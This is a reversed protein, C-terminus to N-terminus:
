VTESPRLYKLQERFERSQGKILTNFDEDPMSTILDKIENFNTEYVNKIYKKMEESNDTKLRQRLEADVDEGKSEAWLAPNSEKIMKEVVKTEEKDMAGQMSKIQTLAKAKDASKISGMAKGWDVSGLYEKREKGSPLIELMSGSLGLARKPDGKVAARGLVQRLQLMNEAKTNDGKVIDEVAANDFKDIAGSDQMAKLYKQAIPNRDGKNQKMFNVVDEASADKIQGDAGVTRGEEALLQKMALSNVGGGKEAGAVEEEWKEKSMGVKRTKLVNLQTEVEASRQKEYAGPDFINQGKAQRLRRAREGGYTTQYKGVQGTEKFQKWATGVAAGTARSRIKGTLWDQAKGTYAGAEGCLKKAAFAGGLLFFISLAFQFLRGISRSMTNLFQDTLTFSEFIKTQVPTLVANNMFYVGLFIFFMYVPLVFSWEILSKWWAGWTQKETQPFIMGAWAIPAFILIVWLIPIRMLILLFGVAMAVISLAMFIIAFVLSSLVRGAVEVGGQINTLEKVITNDPYFSGPQISQAVRSGVDGHSGISGLFASAMINSFEIVMAGIVYSFNILLAVVLLKFLTHKAGYSTDFITGFAIVLLALIFFLNVLDRIIGWLEVIQDNDTIATTSLAIAWQLGDAFFNLFPAMVNSVFTGLFDNLLQEITPLDFWGANAPQAFGLGIFFVLLITALIVLSKKNNLKNIM